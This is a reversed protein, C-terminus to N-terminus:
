WFPYEVGLSLFSTVILHYSPHIWSIILDRVRWTPLGFQFIIIDCLNEWLLSLESGWMLSGLRPTQCQSPSGGSCKAKFGTPSSWLFKVPSPSVSVGSKSPVCLSEHAGLGLSFATVGYLGPGSRGAPRPPDGPSAPLPQSESHPCPCQYCLYCPTSMPMHARRSTVTKDGLGPGLWCGKPELPSIGWALCHVPHFCLGM